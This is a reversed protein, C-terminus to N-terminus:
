NICNIYFNYVYANIYAWTVCKLKVHFNFVLKRKSLAGYCRVCHKVTWRTDAVKRHGVCCRCSCKIMVEDDLVSTM